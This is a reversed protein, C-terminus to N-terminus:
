VRADALATAPARCFPPNDKGAGENAANKQTSKINSRHCGAMQITLIRSMAPPDSAVKQQAALIIKDGGDPM